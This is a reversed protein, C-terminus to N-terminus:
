PTAAQEERPFQDISLDFPRTSQRQRNHAAIEEDTFPHDGRQVEARVFRLMAERVEDGWTTDTRSDYYALMAARRQEFSALLETGDLPAGEQWLLSLRAPLADVKEGVGMTAIAAQFASVEDEVAEWAVREYGLFRRKSVLQGNPRICLPVIVCALWAAGSPDKGPPRFQIPQRRVEVRGDDYLVVEGRWVSDHRLILQDGRRFQNVYGADRAAGVVERRARDVLYQSYVIVEEADEEEVEAEVEAEAEAEAEAPAQALALGLLWWWGSVVAGPSGASSRM